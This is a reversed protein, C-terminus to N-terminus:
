TGPEVILAYDGFGTVSAGPHEGESAVITEVAGTAENIGIETVIGCDRGTTTLVRAGIIELSHEAARKEARGDATRLDSSTEITLADPGVAKIASWPLVDADGSTKALRFATISATSPDLVAPGVQGVTTATSIDLVPRGTLHTLRHTM